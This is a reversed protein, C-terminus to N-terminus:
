EPDGAPLPRSPQRDLDHVAKAKDPSITFIGEDVEQNIELGEEHLLSSGENTKGEFEPICRCKMPLIFLEGDIEMEKYETVEVSSVFTGDNQTIEIKLPYYNLDVAFCVKATTNELAGIFRIVEYRHGDAEETGLYEADSFAKEWVSDDKVLSWRFTVLLRRCSPDSGGFWSDSDFLWAYPLHLPDLTGTASPLIPSSSYSLYGEIGDGTCGFYQFKEGNFASESPKLDINPRTPVLRAFFKDGSLYCTGEDTGLNGLDTTFSFKISRLLKTQSIARQRIELLKGDSEQSLLCPSLFFSLVGVVLLTAAVSVVYRSNRM